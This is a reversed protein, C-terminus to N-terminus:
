GRGGIENERASNAVNAAGGDYTNNSVQMKPINLDLSQAVRHCDLNKMTESIAAAPGISAIRDMLLQSTSGLGAIVPANHRSFTCAQQSLGTM